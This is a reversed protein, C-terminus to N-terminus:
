VGPLSCRVSHIGEVVAALRHDLPSSDLSRQAPKLRHSENLATFPIGVAFLDDRLKGVPTQIMFEAEAGKNDIVLNQVNARGHFIEAGTHSPIALRYRRSRGRRLALFVDTVFEVRGATYPDKNQQM